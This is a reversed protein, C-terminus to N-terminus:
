ERGKINHFLAMVQEQRQIFLELFRKFDIDQTNHPELVLEIHDDDSDSVQLVKARTKLPWIDDGTMAQIQIDVRHGNVCCGKPARIEIQNSNLQILEFSKIQGQKKALDLHVLHTTVNEFFTVLVTLNQNEIWM